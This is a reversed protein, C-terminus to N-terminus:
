SLVKRVFEPLIFSAKHIEPNYYKLNLNQIEEKSVATVPERFNTEPNKSCLMFGIQGSPYTPITSYAYDVVPFLAKCFTQMEKILELHLWPSEGQSCLIGGSRLATKMLEYYSQKFLSEAPGVPDSSDTIIVDFADQNQKMFEFGDGVHLTLKPSSFGKAMAPLYKKSVNIVDEDIECLVVSEVLPHKEVERLVGGDGGGIILVKKPCPHSFLPLNAIMEQYAFEDRETCQIVGDLVLVTGYTKSKFVMVDQFKSPQHYLVEEVEFSTAQGPWLPSLETFWGDKFHNM